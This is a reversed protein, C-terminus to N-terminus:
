AGALKNWASFEADIKTGTVKSYHKVTKVTVGMLEALAEETIKLELCRVGFSHRAVHTTVKKRIGAIEAIAKLHENTTQESHVKPLNRLRELVSRLLPHILLSILRGNKKARIIFREGQVHSDYNFHQWDSYRIGTYCGLLFYNGAITLSRHLPKQLAAEISKVEEFTLHTRDTQRYKPNDYHAFPYNSTLNDRRAMNFFKKLVKWAKDITNNSLKNERLMSEYKRLWEPTIDNFGLATWGYGKMRNIETQYTTLTSDSYKGRLDQILKEAYEVISLYVKQEHILAKIVTISLEGGALEHEFIKRKIDNVQNEIAQNFQRYLPHLKKVRHEKFDWYYLKLYIGTSKKTRGLNCHIFITVPCEGKSNIKEELLKPTCSIKLM